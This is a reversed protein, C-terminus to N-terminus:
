LRAARTLSAMAAAIRGRPLRAPDILCVPWPAWYVLESKASAKLQGNVQSRLLRPTDPRVVGHAQDVEGNQEAVLSTVVVGQPHNVQAKGHQVLVSAFPRPSRQPNLLPRPADVAPELDRPPGETLLRFGPLSVALSDVAIM